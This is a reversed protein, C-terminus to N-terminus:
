CRGKKISNTNCEVCDEMEPEETSSEKASQTVHIIVEYEKEDEYEKRAHKEKEFENFISDLYELMTRLEFSQIDVYKKLLRNFQLMTMGYVQEFTYHGISVLSLIQSGLHDEPRENGTKKAEELTMGELQAGALTIHGGGGLKEM